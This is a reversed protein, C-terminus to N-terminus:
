KPSVPVELGERACSNVGPKKTPDTNNIHKNKLSAPNKRQKDENQTEQNNM